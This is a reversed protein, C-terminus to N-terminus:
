LDEDSAWGEWGIRGTAHPPRSESNVTAPAARANAVESGGCWIGKENGGAFALPFGKDNSCYDYDKLPLPTLKAATRAPAVNGRRPIKLCHSAGRQKGCNFEIITRHVIMIPRQTM